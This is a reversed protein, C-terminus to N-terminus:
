ASFPVVVSHGSKIKAPCPALAPAVAKLARVLAAEIEHLEKEECYKVLGILQRIIWEHQEMIMGRMNVPM